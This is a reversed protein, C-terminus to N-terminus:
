HSIGAYLAYKPPKFAVVLGVVIDCPHFMNFMRNIHKPIIHEQPTQRMQLFVALPSGLCMLTDVSCIDVNTNSRICELVYEFNLQASCMAPLPMTFTSPEHPTVTPTKESMSAKRHEMVQNITDPSHRQVIDYAIVSGLSHGIISVKGGNEVFKPNHQLFRAWLDNMRDVVATFIEFHEKSLFSCHLSAYRRDM